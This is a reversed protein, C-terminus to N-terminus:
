VVTGSTPGLTTAEVKQLDTLSNLTMLWGKYYSCKPLTAPMFFAGEPSDEDNETNGFFNYSMLKTPKQGPLM